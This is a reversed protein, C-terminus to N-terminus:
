PPIKIKNAANFLALVKTACSIWWDRHPEPISPVVDRQGFLRHAIFQNITLVLRTFSSADYQVIWHVIWHHWQNSLSSTIGLLHSFVDVYSFDSFLPNEMLIMIYRLDCHIQTPPPQLLINKITKMLDVHFPLPLKAVIEHYFKRLDKLNVHSSTIDCCTKDVLDDELFSFNLLYPNSFANLILHM